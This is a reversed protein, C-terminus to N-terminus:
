AEVGGDEFGHGVLAVGFRRRDLLGRNRDDDLALVDDAHGLRAGALGGSEGERQKGLQDARLVVGVLATDASQNQGRGAFQNNLDSLVDGSIGTIGTRGDGSAVAADGFAGLDGGETTTAVEEDGGRATEKVETALTM